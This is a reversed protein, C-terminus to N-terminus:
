LTVMDGPKFDPKLDWWWASGQFVRRAGLRRLRAELDRMQLVFFDNADYLIHADQTMDLLIPSGAVIEEPTKFLPSLRTMVGVTQQSKVLPDLIKEVPAFDEVRPMRGKPLPSAVVLLDIDSDPRMTRRGVSGFVVLSVLRMQYHTLCASRLAGLLDDFATAWPIVGATECQDMRPLNGGTVMITWFTESYRRFDRLMSPSITPGEAELRPSAIPWTLRSVDLIM